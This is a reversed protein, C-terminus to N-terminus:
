IPPNNVIQIDNYKPGVREVTFYRHDSSNMSELVMNYQREIEELLRSDNFGYTDQICMSIVRTTSRILSEDWQDEIDVFNEGNMFIIEDAWYLLAESIPVLAFDRATGCNRVNYGYKSILYNQMTASRLLGASCITLVKKTSGQSFNMANGMQNRTSKQIM